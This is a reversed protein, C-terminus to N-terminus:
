LSNAKKQRGYEKLFPQHFGQSEEGTLNIDM